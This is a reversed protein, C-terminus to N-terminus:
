LVWKFINNVDVDLEGFHNNGQRKRILVTNVMVRM